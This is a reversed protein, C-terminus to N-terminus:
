LLGKGPLTENYIRPATTNHNPHTSKGVGV